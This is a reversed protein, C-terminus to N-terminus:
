RGSASLADLGDRLLAPGLDRLLARQCDDGSPPTDRDSHECRAGYALSVVLHLALRDHEHLQLPSGRADAYESAFLLMEAPTSLRRVQPISWDVGFTLAAAALAGMETTAAVSEWDYVADITVDRVSLNQVRWDGHAVVERGPPLRALGSRAERMLDDIWEAGGATATFDFRASHPAPYLDDVLRHLPHVLSRMADLEPAALTVFRALGAAVTTRVAPAHADPPRHQALLQEATLAGSGMPLPGALPAPAPFGTAALTRQVATTARLYAIDVDPRHGKVVVARDDALVVGHVSGSSSDFFLYRALGAGLHEACWADVAAAIGDPDTTGFLARELALEAGGWRTLQDAIVTGLGNV